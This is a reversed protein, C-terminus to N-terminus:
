KKQPQWAQGYRISMSHHCRVMLYVSTPVSSNSYSLTSFVVEPRSVVGLGDPSYRLQGNAICIDHGYIKTNHVVEAYKRVVPEFLKGWLCPVLPIFPEGPNRKEKVLQSRKKYKNVGFLAGMESGGITTKMLDFWKPTGQHCTSHLLIFALIRKVLEDSSPPPNVCRKKKYRPKSLTNPLPEEADKPLDDDRKRKNKQPIVLSKEISSLTQM